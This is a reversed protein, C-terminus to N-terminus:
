KEYDKWVKEKVDYYQNKDIDIVTIIFDSEPDYFLIEELEQHVEHRTNYAYIEYDTNLTILEFKNFHGNEWFLGNIERFDTSTRPNTTITNLGLITDIYMIPQEPLKGSECTYVKGDSMIALISADHLDTKLEFQEM